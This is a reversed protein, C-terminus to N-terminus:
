AFIKQKSFIQYIHEGIDADNSFEDIDLWNIRNDKRFWTFQRKAYNRTKQKIVSVMETHTIEKELFMFAEKYGVTQLANLHLGYGKSQLTKVEDLLGEDIMADVRSDIKAYLKSREMALGIFYPAFDAPQTNHQLYASFHRGTIQYVELARLIRQTDTANLKEATLPDVTKLKQYLAAIGNKQAEEKLAAKINADAIKPEFLGDVLARIYLGSGGVVIPQKGRGIIEKICQRAEEGFQGASYYEDPCKIDIFHHPVAALQKPSPKATGIVMYKYVQRSDASVIEANLRKALEVSVATKGIGTPGVILLVKNRM